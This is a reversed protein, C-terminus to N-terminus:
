VRLLADQLHDIADHIHEKNLEGLLKDKLKAHYHQRLEGLVAGWNFCAVHRFPTDTHEVWTKYLLAAAGLAGAAQLRSAAEMLQPLPWQGGRAQLLWQEVLALGQTEAATPPTMDM